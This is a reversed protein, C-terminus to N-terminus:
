QNLVKMDLSQKAEAKLSKDYKELGGRAAQPRLGV